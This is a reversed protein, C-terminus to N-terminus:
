ISRDLWLGSGGFKQSSESKPCNRNNVHQGRGIGTVAADGFPNDNVNLVELSEHTKLVRAIEVAGTSAIGCPCLTLERLWELRELAKAMGVVGEDGLDMQSVTLRELRSILGAV